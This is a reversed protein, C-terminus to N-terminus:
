EVPLGCLEVFRSLAGADGVVRVLGQNLAAEPEIQRQLLGLYTHIDTHFAANAGTPCEGQQVFIKGEEIRVQLVEDGIHLEYTEHLDRAKEPRFFTKLTLAYSGLHLVADEDSALPVFQSGWKGLELLAEELGQGLPTLEYVTSGAPPPLVRRRIIGRSELTKLREALLNSSIGPLGFMLDKFRRPGAFLERIILLSWREGVIDLAYALGCFQHYSRNKM